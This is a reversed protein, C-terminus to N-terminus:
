ATPRIEEYNAERRRGCVEVVMDECFIFLYFIFSLYLLYFIRGRVEVVMDESHDDSQHGHTM